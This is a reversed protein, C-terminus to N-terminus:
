HALLLVGGVLLLAGVCVVVTRGTLGMPKFQGREKLRAIRGLNWYQLGALALLVVGGVLFFVVAFTQGVTSLTDAGAEARVLGRRAPTPHGAYHGGGAALAPGM